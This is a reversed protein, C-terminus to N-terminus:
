FTERHPGIINDVGSRFISKVISLCPYFVALLLTKSQWKDGSVKQDVNTSLKLM